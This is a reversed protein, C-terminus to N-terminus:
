ASQPVLLSEKLASTVKELEDSTLWPHMPLSMVEQCAKETIPLMGKQYGYSQFVPQEHLGKMYHVATPVGRQQMEAVVRDRSSVRITYQAFSHSYGSLLAPTICVDGLHTDYHSAVQRRLKLEKNFHKLKVLLIAAQITDCRGNIGLATHEGRSPSGHLQIIRMKEALEDDNTFLAGAEGYAGLPKAPYFSTSGILSAGCSKLSGQTAGFSQAGDEIVPIGYKEGIANIKRMDAMHGFISVPMIAKTRPTISAEICQPDVNYTEPDIDVFVPKAGLLAIMEAPSIWTFPSTIVEDGPGIGLAMLAIMLSDTGNAVAICHKVGTYGALQSELEGVEPGLIYAGHDLVKMVSQQIEDKYHEYQTKLDIFQM